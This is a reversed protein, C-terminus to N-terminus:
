KVNKLYQVIKAIDEDKIVGKYSRMMGNQYDKVIAADPDTISQTLYVSDAVITQEKGDIKVVRGSHYINKFTPGVLKSGDLSHCGTCANKTMINLGESDKGKEVVKLNALWENYTKEPLVKVIGEMYSHRLGCFEACLIEYEGLRQPIFWMNTVQGPVLDEKIRYAPVYFSHIVDTSYMDLRIPKNLPVVLTDKKVKGNGYDFTWDWMRSIVKVPMADAPINRMPTFAVYGYYFMLMVLIIPVVTWTIELPINDKVQVAKPHKKRNYKVVFLIMIVTIAILFFFGVGMIFMFARDVGEVFNSANM